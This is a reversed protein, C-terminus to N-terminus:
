LEAVFLKLVICGSKNAIRRSKQGGPSYKRRSPNWPGGGGPMKLPKSADCRRLISFLFSLSFVAKRQRCFTLKFVRRRSPSVSAVAARALALRTPLPRWLCNADRERPARPPTRGHSSATNYPSRCTQRRPTTPAASRSAQFSRTSSPRSATASSSPSAAPRTRISPSRPRRQARRQPRRHHAAASRLNGVPFTSTSSRRRRGSARPTTAPSGPRLGPRPSSSSSWWVPRSACAKRWRTGSRVGRGARSASATRTSSGTRTQVAGDTEVTIDRWVHGTEVRAAATVLTLESSRAGSDAHALQSAADARCACGVTRGTTYRVYGDAYKCDYAAPVAGNLTRVEIPEDRSVDGALHEVAVHTTHAGDGTVRVTIGTFRMAALGSLTPVVLTFGAAGM